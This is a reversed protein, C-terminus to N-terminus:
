ALSNQHDSLFPRASLELMAALDTDVTLILTELQQFVSRAHHQFHRDMLGKTHGSTHQNVIGTAPVKLM